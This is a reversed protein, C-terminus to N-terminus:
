GYRGGAPGCFGPGDPQSQQKRHLCFPDKKEYHLLFVGNFVPDQENVVAGNELVAGAVVPTVPITSLSCM